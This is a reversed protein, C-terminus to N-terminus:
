PVEYVEVVTIGIDSPAGGAGSVVATYAGPPLTVLIASDATPASGWSFAGVSSAIAAVQPSGGWGINSAVVTDIGNITQHLAVQPDALTGAVGFSILAPGSVRILVTLSTSGGVVFGPILVNAGTGVKARASINVLRPSSGAVYTLPDSADYVEAVAVGIDAPTGAAGKIVGTYAGVALDQVLASDQTATAGWSFAGVRSATASITANGGWGANSALVTDAANITTHLELEPDAITGTVGLPILAPGSARILVPLSGTGGSVVFGPILVDGGTGVQARTSINVLHGSNASASVALTAPSSTVTGNSNTAVCSFSGANLAGVARILLTSGKSGSVTAGGSTGDALPLNNFLWQYSPAGSAACNFVM